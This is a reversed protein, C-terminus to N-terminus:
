SRLVVNDIAKWLLPDRLVQFPTIEFDIREDLMGLVASQRCDPAVPHKMAALVVLKPFLRLSESQLSPQTKGNVLLGTDGSDEAQGSVPYEVQLAEIECGQNTTRLHEGTQQMM